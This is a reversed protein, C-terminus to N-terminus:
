LNFIAGTSAMIVALKLMMPSHKIQPLDIHQLCKEEPEIKWM